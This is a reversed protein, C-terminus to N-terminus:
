LGKENDRIEPYPAVMGFCVGRQAASFLFDLCYVQYGQLWYVCLIFSIFPVCNILFLCCSYHFCVVKAHLSYRINVCSLKRTSVKHKFPCKQSQVLRVERERRILM